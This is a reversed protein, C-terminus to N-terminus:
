SSLGGVLAPAVDRLYLALHTVETTPEPTSRWISQYRIQLPSGDVARIIPQRDRLNALKSRPLIASGIGLEAWEQLVSYSLAQGPYERLTIKLQGFLARTTRTLGCADPVMVFTEGCIEKLTVEPKQRYRSQAASSPIFVM